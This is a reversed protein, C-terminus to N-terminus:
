VPIPLLQMFATRARFLRSKITGVPVGMHEAIEDYSMDQIERMVFPERHHDPMRDIATQIAVRLESQYASQEPSPTHSEFEIPSVGENEARRKSELDSFNLEKRRSQNRYENKTLNNAITHIWTSFKRRPDYNDRARHVRYFTAQAIDLVREEDNLRKRLFGLIRPEYRAVLENFALENGERYRVFLEEDSLAKLTGENRCRIPM